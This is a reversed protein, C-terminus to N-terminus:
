VIALVIPCSEFDDASYFFSIESKLFFFCAIFETVLKISFERFLYVFFLCSFLFLQAPITIGPCNHLSRQGLYRDAPRVYFM